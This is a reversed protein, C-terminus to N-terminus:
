AKFGRSQNDGYVVENLSGKGYTLGAYLKQANQVMPKTNHDSESAKEWGRYLIELLNKADLIPEKTFSAAADVLQKNVYIYISMLDKSVDYTFDLNGSLERLLRNAQLMYKNFENRASLEIAELAEDLTVFLMQYNILLLEGQGANIIKNQFDKIMTNNM